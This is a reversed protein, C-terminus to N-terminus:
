GKIKQKFEGNEWLGYRKKGRNFLTGEGHYKGGKWLGEYRKGDPWKMVGFGEKADMVYEGEFVKGDTWKFLGKGHMKGEKWTGEYSRNPWIYKGTGEILDNKFDGEYSTGDAWNFKGKGSKLGNEYNGEFRSGDPWTEIGIGHQKDNLWNGNFTSKNVFEMTGQGHMKGDLWGGTYVDGKPTVRRGKDHLKGEKWYGECIGGDKYYMIGKGQPYGKTSWEGVYISGDSLRTPGKWELPEETLTKEFKFPSLRSYARKAEITSINNPVESVPQPQQSKFELFAKRSLHGRLLSQTLILSQAPDPTLESVKAGDSLANECYQRTSSPSTTLTVASMQGPKEEKLAKNSDQALESTKEQRDSVCNCNCAGM